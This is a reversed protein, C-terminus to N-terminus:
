VLREYADPAGDSLFLEVEEPTPPLGTLDFTLRRILALRDAELAHRFGVGELGALIFRDIPNRSWGAEGVDPVEPRGPPRFAWHDRQERDFTQPTAVPTAEPAPDPEPESSAAVNATGLLFLVSPVIRPLCPLMRPRGSPNPDPPRHPRRGM